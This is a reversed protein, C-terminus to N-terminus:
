EDYSLWRREDARLGGTMFSKAKCNIYSDKTPNGKGNLNSSLSLSERRTDRYSSMM